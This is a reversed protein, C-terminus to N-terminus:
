LFAQAQLNWLGAYEGGRLMLEAHTGAEVIESDNMYRLIPHASERQSPNPRVSDPGRAKHASWVQSLFFDHNKGREFKETTCLPRVHFGFILVLAILLGDDKGHEATPDLAASPEDFLLLGISQGESLLSRM